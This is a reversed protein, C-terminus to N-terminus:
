GSAAEVEQARPKLVIPIAQRRRMRGRSGLEAPGGAGGAGFGYAVQAVPIVTTDGHQVPEGYVHKISLSREFLAAIPEFPAPSSM